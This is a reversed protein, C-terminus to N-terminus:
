VEHTKNHLSILAYKALGQASLKAAFIHCLELDKWSSWIGSNQLVWMVTTIIIYM